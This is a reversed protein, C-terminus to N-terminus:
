DAISIPDVALDEAAVDLIKPELLDNNGGAGRPLVRVRFPEDSRQSAFAEIVNDREVFALHKSDNAVVHGVVMPGPRMKRAPFVWGLQTRNLGPVCPPDNGDRLDAPKVM